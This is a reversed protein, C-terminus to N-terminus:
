SAIEGLRENEDLRQGNLFESASVRKRGELQVELLELTTAEGCAVLLRGGSVGMTGPPGSVLGEVPKAGHVRVTLGRFVTWAGPWPTFGRLRNYNALAPRKWDIRGDEKRLQRAITAHVHEQPVPAPREKLARVLLAAGIVSLRESLEQATEDPEIPTPQKLLIDGTDLGADIRMITVGTETAGDAVAWQIPAAGRYAPLLSAHVNLIAYSPIDIISQPIIQGYGVVIIAEPAGDRLESLSERIKLPQRIPVGLALAREKVPSMALNGGRGKPRDPQTYVSLVEHEAACADLTPVAFAPTGMFVLRM